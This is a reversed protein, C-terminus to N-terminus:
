SRCSACWDRSANPVGKGLLFGIDLGAAPVGTERRQCEFQYSCRGQGWRRAAPSLLRCCISRCVLLCAFIEKFALLDLALAPVTATAGEAFVPPPLDPALVAAAAAAAFVLLDLALALDTTAAIEAFVLLDLALAPVTAAAGEAFVPPLLVPTLVAAAAAEAFV